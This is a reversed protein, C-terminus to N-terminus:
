FEMEHVEIRVLDEGRQLARPPLAEAEFLDGSPETEALARPLLQPAAEGLQELVAARAEVPM